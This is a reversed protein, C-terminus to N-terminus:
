GALASLFAQKLCKKKEIEVQIFYSSMHRYYCKTSEIIQKLIQSLVILLYNDQM